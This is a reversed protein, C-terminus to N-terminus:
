ERSNSELTLFLSDKLVFEPLRKKNRKTTVPVKARTGQSELPLVMPYFLGSFHFCPRTSKESPSERQQSSWWLIIQEPSFSPPIQTFHTCTKCCLSSGSVLLTSDSFYTSIEMTRDETFWQTEQTNSCLDCSFLLKHLWPLGPISLSPSESSFVELRKALPQTRRWKQMQIGVWKRLFTLPQFIHCEKVWEQGGGTFPTPLLHGQVSKIKAIWSVALAWPNWNERFLCNLDFQSCTCSVTLKLLYQNWLRVACAHQLCVCPSLCCGM